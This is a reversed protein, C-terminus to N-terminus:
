SRQQLFEILTHRQNVLKDKMERRQHRLFLIARRFQCESIMHRRLVLADIESPRQDQPTAELEREADAAAVHLVNEFNSRRLTGAGLEQQAHGLFWQRSNHAEETYIGRDTGHTVEPSTATELLRDLMWFTTQNVSFDLLHILDLRTQGDLSQVIKTDQVVLEQKPARLYRWGALFLVLGIFLPLMYIWTRPERQLNPIGAFAALALLMMAWLRADATAAALAAMVRPMKSKLRDWYILIAMLLVAVVLSSSAAGFKGEWFLVVAEFGSAFIITTGLFWRTAGEWNKPLDIDAMRVGLLRLFLM